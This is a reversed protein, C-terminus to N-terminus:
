PAPPPPVMVKNATIYGFGDKVGEVKVFADVQLDKMQISKAGDLFETKKTTRFEVTNGNTLEITLGKKTVARLTGEFSATLAALWAM